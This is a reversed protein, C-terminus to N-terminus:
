ATVAPPAAPDADAGVVPVVRGHEPIRARAAVRSSHPKASTVNEESNPNLVIKM